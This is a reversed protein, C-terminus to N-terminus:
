RPADRRLTELIRAVVQEVSQGDTEIRLAGPAETLPSVARTSDHRDRRELDAQIAELRHEQHLEHARRRAREM